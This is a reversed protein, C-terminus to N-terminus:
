DFLNKQEKGNQKSDKLIYIFMLVWNIAYIDMKQKTGNREMSLLNPNYPNM